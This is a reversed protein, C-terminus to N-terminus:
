NILNIQLDLGDHSIVTQDNNTTRSKIWVFKNIFRVNQCFVHYQKYM